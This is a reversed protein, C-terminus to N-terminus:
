VRASPRLQRRGFLLGLTTLGLGVCRFGTYLWPIQDLHHLSITELALGAGATAVGLLAVKIPRQASPLRIVKVALFVTLPVVLGIIVGAQLVRRSRFAEEGGIARVAQRFLETIEFRFPHVTEIVYSFSFIAVILWLRRAFTRDLRHCDCAFIAAILWVAALAWHSALRNEESLWEVAVM